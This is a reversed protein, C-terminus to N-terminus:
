SADGKTTAQASPSAFGRPEVRDKSNLDHRLVSIAEYIVRRVRNVGGLPRHEPLGHWPTFSLQECLEAQDAVRQSPITLEAVTVFPAESERWEAVPDEIPMRDPAGRLQVMFAFAADGAALRAALNEGIFNNSSSAVCPSPDGTPRVSYKCATTGHLFPVTSWYRVDLPDVVKAKVMARVNFLERLRFAFPNLGPFFFRWQPKANTFAIYDAASRVFFAPGNIMVFDQTTSASAAVGMVKIAMGRVDDASDPQIKPSGNSFRIYADYTAPAAFLGVRLADPLDGLVRFRARVCGHAKPHADRKAAGPTADARVATSLADLVITVAAAEDAPTAEDPYPDGDAPILLNPMPLDERLVQIPLSM